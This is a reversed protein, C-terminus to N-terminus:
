EEDPLSACALQTVLPAFAPSFKVEGAQINWLDTVGLVILGTGRDTALMEPSVGAGLIFAQAARIKQTLVADHATSETPINLGTKVEVLLEAETM